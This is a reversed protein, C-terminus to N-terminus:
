ELAPCSPPGKTQFLVRGATVKKIPTATMQTRELCNWFGDRLLARFFRVGHLHPRSRWPFSFSRTVMRKWLRGVLANPFLGQSMPIIKGSVSESGCGLMRRVTCHGCGRWCKADTGCLVRGQARVGSLCPGACAQSGTCRLGADGPQPEALLHQARVSLTVEAATGHQTGTHTRM